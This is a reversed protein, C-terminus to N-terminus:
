KVSFTYLKIDGSLELPGPLCEMQDVSGTKLVSLDDKPGM